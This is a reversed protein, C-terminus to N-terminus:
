LEWFNNLDKIKESEREFCNNEFRFGKQIYKDLFERNLNRKETIMNGGKIYWDSCELSNKSYLYIIKCPELDYTNLFQVRHNLSRTFNVNTFYIKAKEGNQLIVCKIALVGKPAVKGLDKFNFYRFHENLFTNLYEETPIYDDGPFIYVDPETAQGHLKTFFGGAICTFSLKDKTAIEEIIQKFRTKDLNFEVHYKSIFDQSIISGLSPCDDEFECYSDMTKM